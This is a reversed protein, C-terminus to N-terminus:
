SKETVYWNCVQTVLTPNQESSYVWGEQCKKTVNLGYEVISDIDWNVPTYMLCEEYSGQTNRPITLNLQQEETLNPSIAYIWSTKCHHPVDLVM